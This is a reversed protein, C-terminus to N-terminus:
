ANRQIFYIVFNLPFFHQMRELAAPFQRYSWIIRQELRHLRGPLLTVLSSLLLQMCRISASEIADHYSVYVVSVPQHTLVTAIM